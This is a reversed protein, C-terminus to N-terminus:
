VTNKFVVSPLQMRVNGDTTPLCFSEEEQAESHEKCASCVDTEDYFKAGCCDSLEEKM